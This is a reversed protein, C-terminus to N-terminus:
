IDHCVRLLGNILADIDSKSNYMAFSIRISGAIEYKEMLPIACHHGVGLDLGYSDLEAAVEKLNRGNITFSIVGLRESPCGLIKINPVSQHQQLAYSTLTSVHAHIKHMGIKTLYNIATELGFIGAFNPSGPEFKHPARKLTATGAHIDKVMGGGGQWAPMTNLIDFKGFLVGTGTPGYAKHGSFVYFDCGIEQVNIPIRGVAQAGDILVKAGVGHALDTILKVENVAGITNSIHTLAVLRTKMGLVNKLVSLDLEGNLGIPVM